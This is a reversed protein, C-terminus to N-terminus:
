KVVGIAQWIMTRTVGAGYLGYTFGKTAINKIMPFLTLNKYGNEYQNVTVFPITKYEKNFVVDVYTWGTSSFATTIEGSQVYCYDSLSSNIDSIEQEATAIKVSNQEALTKAEGAVGGLTTVNSELAVLANEVSTGNPRYTNEASADPFADEGNAQLRIFESM